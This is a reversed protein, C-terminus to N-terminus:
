DSGPKKCRLGCGSRSPSVQDRDEQTRGRLTAKVSYDDALIAMVARQRALIKELTLGWSQAAATREDRLNELDGSRVSWYAGAPLLVLLALSAILALWIAVRFWLLSDVARHSINTENQVRGQERCPTDKGM